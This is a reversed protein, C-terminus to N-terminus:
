ARRERDLTARAMARMAEHAARALEATPRKLEAQCAGCHRSNGVAKRHCRSTACTVSVM